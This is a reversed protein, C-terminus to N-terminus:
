HFLPFKPTPRVHVNHELAARLADLSDSSLELRTIHRRDQDHMHQLYARLEDAV